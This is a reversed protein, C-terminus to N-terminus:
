MIKRAILSAPEVPGSSFSISALLRSSWDEMQGSSDAHIRALLDGPEVREGVCVLGSIGSGHRVDDDANRRGAGTELVIGAIQRADIDRVYVPESEEHLVEHVLRARPLKDPNDIVGADGDQMTVMARFRELASGDDLKSRALDLASELSSEKGSLFLMGAVLECIFGALQGPGEGKMISICEEVEVANGVARGLPADMCTLWAGVRCGAARGLDVMLQALHEAEEFKEFFAGRGFKVDLLLADLGEALKKSLISAAVLSPHEVTSTEDRMAYLIKDAPVIRETQGAIVCGIKGVQGRLERSDLFVRFGPISELKDLTGGTHGLGRGSLMPVALGCAAALPALVLSVKDGVGGTSHKDVVPLGIGEMDFVEGSHLMEELLVRTEELSLGQQFLAMLMAGIQGRSWSGSVAGNVFERIAAAPM